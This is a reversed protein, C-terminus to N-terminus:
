RGKTISIKRDDTYHPAKIIEKNNAQFFQEGFPRTAPSKLRTMISM